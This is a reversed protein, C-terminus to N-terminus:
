IHGDTPKGLGHAIPRVRNTQRKGQPTGNFDACLKKSGKSLEERNLICHTEKGTTVIKELLSKKVLDDL